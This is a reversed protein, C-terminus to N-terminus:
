GMAPQPQNQNLGKHFQVQAGAIVGHAYANADGNTGRKGKRMNMGLKDFEAEVVQDKVVMLATCDSPRAALEADKMDRLTKSMRDAMGYMFSTRNRIGRKTADRGGTELAHHCFHYLHEAVETDVRHGFFVHKIRGEANYRGPTTRWAKIDTFRAIASLCRAVAHDRKRGTDIENTTCASEARIETESLSLNYRELLEGVMKAAAMAEEETCGNDTTKGQLARIKRLISDRKENTV